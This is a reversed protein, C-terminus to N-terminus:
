LTGLTRTGQQFVELERWRKTMVVNGTITEEVPKIRTKGHEIMRRLRIAARAAEEAEEAEGVDGGASTVVDAIRHDVQRHHYLHRVGSFEHKQMIKEKQKPNRELMIRWGEIQSDDWGTLQKLELRAKSRRTNADRDFVKPDSIYALELVIEPRKKEEVAEDDDEEDTDEGDAVVPVAPGDDLDSDDDVDAIKAKSKGKSPPEKSFPDFDSDEEALEEEDIAEARRLIDAKMQEIFSRDELVNGSKKGFRVNNLNMEQDDWINRREEVYKELSDEARYKFKMEQEREVEQALEPDSESIATGELMAEIVREPSGSYRPHSLLLRIYDPSTDPFIDLVQTVKIDLEPDPPPPTRARAKGKGESVINVPPPPQSPESLSRIGLNDIGPQIGSSRLLIKLAGPNKGKGKRTTDASAHDSIELSALTSELVDLRADREEKSKIAKALAASLDHGTQYDVVLPRNLYPTPPVQTGNPPSVELLSFIIDFTREAELALPMGQSSSALDALLTNFILHFADLLSVKTQVWIPEWDDTPLDSLFANCLSALGGYSTAIHTMGADYLRAIQLVFQKNRAFIRRIKDSSALLFSFICQAAKRAAYLGQVHQSTLLATFAPVLESEITTSLTPTNELARSFVNRLQPLTSRSSAYVVSLDLLIQIDLQAGKEKTEALKEALALTRSRIAQSDKSSVSPAQESWILALLIQHANDKAYTALFRRAAYTDRKSPPLVLTAHLAAAISQNLDALQSASLAKRTGTPPYPPLRLITDSSM